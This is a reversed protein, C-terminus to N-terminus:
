AIPSHLPWCYPPAPHSASPEYAVWVEPARIQARDQDRLHKALTFYFVITLVVSGLWMVRLWM